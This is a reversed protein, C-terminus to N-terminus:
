TQTIITKEPLKINTEDAGPYKGKPKWVLIQNYEMPCMEQQILRM